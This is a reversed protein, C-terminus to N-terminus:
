FPQLKSNFIIDGSLPCRQPSIFMISFYGQGLLAYFLAEVIESNDKLLKVSPLNKVLQIAPLNKVLQAM